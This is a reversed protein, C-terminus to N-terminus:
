LHKLFPFCHQHCCTATAWPLFCLVRSGWLRYGQCLWCGSWGFSLPLDEELPDKRGPDLWEPRLSEQLRALGSLTLLPPASFELTHGSDASCVRLCYWSVLLPCSASVWLYDGFRMVAVGQSLHRWWMVRGLPDNSCIQIKGGKESSGELWTIFILTEWLRYEEGFVRENIRM